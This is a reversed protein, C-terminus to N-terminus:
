TKWFAIGGEMVGFIFALLGLPIYKRPSSNESVLIVAAILQSLLAAFKVVFDTVNDVRLKRLFIAIDLYRLPINFRGFRMAARPQNANIELM